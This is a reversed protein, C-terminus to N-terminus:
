AQYVIEISAKLDALSFPKVLFLNPMSEGKWFEKSSELGSTAIIIPQQGLKRAAVVIRPGYHDKASPAGYNTDALIFHYKQSSLLELAKEEDEALDVKQFGFLSLAKAAFSGVGEEDEVILAAQDKLKDKLAM